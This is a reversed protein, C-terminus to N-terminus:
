SVLHGVLSLSAGPLTLIGQKQRYKMLSEARTGVPGQEPVGLDWGDSCFAFVFGALEKFSGARSDVQPDQLPCKVFLKM